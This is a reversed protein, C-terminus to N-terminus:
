GVVKSVRPPEPEHLLDRLTTQAMSTRMAEDATRAAKDAPPLSRPNPRRPNPTEHRIADLIDALSISALDRAPAVTDDEATM